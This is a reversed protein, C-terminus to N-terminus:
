LVTNASGLGFATFSKFNATRMGERKRAYTTQNGTLIVTLASQKPSVIQFPNMNLNWPLFQTSDVCELDVDQGDNLMGFMATYGASQEVTLDIIRDKFTASTVILGAGTTIWDTGWVIYTNGYVSFSGAGFATNYQAADTIIPQWSM